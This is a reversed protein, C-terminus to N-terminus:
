KEQLVAEATTVRSADSFLESL